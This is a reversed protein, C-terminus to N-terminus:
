ASKQAEGGRAESRLALLAGEAGGGVAPGSQGCRLCRAAKKEGVVREVVVPLEHDCQWFMSQKNRAM